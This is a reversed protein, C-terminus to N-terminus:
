TTNAHSVLQKFIFLDIFLFFSIFLYVRSQSYHFKGQKEPDKVKLLDKFFSM